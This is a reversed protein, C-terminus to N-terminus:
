KFTRIWNLAFLGFLIPVISKETVMRVLEAHSLVPISQETRFFNAPDVRTKIQVLRKFNDHFYQVGYSSGEFYGYVNHHNIGLDLDKYCMFAQRLNQSVFPTMYKHLDRVLNIYYKAVEQGTEYRDAKYQIMWLNGARHPFATETSPNEAMREEMVSVLTKSDSLFLAIFTARVTKIIKQQLYNQELCQQDSFISVEEFKLRSEDRQQLSNVGKTPRLETTELILRIFLDNNIGNYVINTADQELTREVQFVTAREPVRVLKIKYVLVVGFSGGGGGRIAWFLDEGMSSRNLLRGQVDVVQADVVNDVSTGYKRMLNGYGGGSIRGGVGVTPGVGAPFGHVESKEAIRYYVEGLTAGAEVWATETDMNVEISRLNFMDLLFFPQAAVYSVGEYGHGGSRIKMLLDHRKACIVSAQVHSVHFATVILFPKQTTSTNFRLNRIYAQFISSFSSSNPTFIAEIQLVTSISYDYESVNLLISVFMRNM